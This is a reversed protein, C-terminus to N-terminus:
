IDKLMKKIAYTLRERKQAEPLSKFEGEATSLRLIAGSQADVLMLLMAAEPRKKVIMKGEDNLEQMVASSEKGGLYAVFFDPHKAVPKKGKKQLEDNIIQEIMEAIKGDAEKLKGKSDEEVVGSGDLFQYTKYGKMNAKESTVNEVKIDSTSVCGSMGIMAALALGTVIKKMSKDKQQLTNNVM